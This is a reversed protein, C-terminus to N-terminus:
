RNRRLYEEALALYENRLNNGKIHSCPTHSAISNEIQATRFPIETQFVDEEFHAATISAVEACAKSQKLKKNILIGAVKLSSNYKTQITEVAKYVPFLGYFSFQGCETVIIAEDSATLCEPTLYEELSDKCDFFIYDYQNFVESKLANKIVFKDGDCLAPIKLLTQKSSPIYDIGCDSSRIAQKVDSDSIFPIESAASQLIQSFTIKGDAEFDFFQAINQQPNIDIICVKKGLHTLGGALNICTTSKGVGGKESIISIVKPNKMTNAKKREKESTINKNAPSYAFVFAALSVIAALSLSERKQGIRRTIGCM